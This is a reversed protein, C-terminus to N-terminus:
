LFRGEADLNRSVNGLKDNARALRLAEKAEGGDTGAIKIWKMLINYDAQDLNAGSKASSIVSKLQSDM